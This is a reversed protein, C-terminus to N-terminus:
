FWGVIPNAPNAWALKAAGAGTLGAYGIAARPKKTGSNLAKGRKQGGKGSAKKIATHCYTTM